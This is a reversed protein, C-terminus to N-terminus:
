WRSGWGISISPNARYLGIRQGGSLWLLNSEQVPIQIQIETLLAPRITWAFKEIGGLYFDGGFGGFLGIQTSEKGLIIGRLIDTAIHTTLLTGKLVASTEPITQADFGLHMDVQFCSRPNGTLSMVTSTDSNCTQWWAGMGHHYRQFGLSSDLGISSIFLGKSYTRDNTQDSQTAEAFLISVTAWLLTLFM